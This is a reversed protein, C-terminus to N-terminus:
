GVGGSMSVLAESKWVKYDNGIAHCRRVLKPSPANSYILM